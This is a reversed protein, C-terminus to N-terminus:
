DAMRGETQGPKERECFFALFKDGYNLEALFDSSCFGLKRIIHGVSIYSESIKYGRSESALILDRSM